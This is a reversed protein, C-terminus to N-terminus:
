NRVPRQRAKNGYFRKRFRYQAIESQLRRELQLPSPVGEGKAARMVFTAEIRRKTRTIQDWLAKPLEQSIHESPTGLSKCPM